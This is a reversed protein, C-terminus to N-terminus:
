KEDMFEAKEQFESALSNFRAKLLVVRGEPNRTFILTCNGVLKNWYNALKKAMSKHKGLIDPM